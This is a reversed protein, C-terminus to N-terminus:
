DLPPQPHSSSDTLAGHQPFSVIGVLSLYFGSVRNSAELRCVSLMCMASLWVCTGDLFAVRGLCVVRRRLFRRWRRRWSM